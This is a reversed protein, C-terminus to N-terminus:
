TPGAWCSTGTSSRRVAPPRTPGARCSPSGSARRTAPTTTRWSPLLATAPRRSRTTRGARTGATTPAFLQINGADGWLENDKADSVGTFGQPVWEQSVSDDNQLCYKVDPDPATGFSDRSCWPQVTRNAGALLNQVGSKPLVSDLRAVRKTTEANLEGPSLTFDGPSAAGGPATWARTGHPSPTGATARPEQTWSEPADPPLDEAQAPAALGTLALTAAAAAM